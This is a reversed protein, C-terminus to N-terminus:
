RGPEEDLLRTLLERLEIPGDVSRQDNVAIQLAFARDGIKTAEAQQAESLEEFDDAEMMARCTSANASFVSRCAVPRVDYVSCEGNRLLPCTWRGAEAREHGLKGISRAQERVTDVFAAFDEASMNKRAAALIQRGDDWHTLVILQHCCWACGKGCEFDDGAVRQEIFVDIDQWKVGM